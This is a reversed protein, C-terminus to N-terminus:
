RVRCALAKLVMETGRLDGRHIEATWDFVLPSLGATDDGTLAVSQTELDDLAALLAERHEELIEILRETEIHHGFFVRMAPHHKLVPRKVPHSGVWHELATMGQGTIRYAIKDPRDQQSVAASEVFGAQELRKLERYIQSQAPSWYFHRYSGTAWGRLEYGSLDQGFTLLGLVAFATAPLDNDAM